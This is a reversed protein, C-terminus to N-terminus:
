QNKSIVKASDIKDITVFEYGKKQLEDIIIFAANVSTKFIDHLLIIDGPKTNKIVRRAVIGANQDKWDEPDVSWLVISMDTEELLRDDWDGYPPRIYKPTKGTVRKICKNTKEIEEKSTEYNSRKLDIHSYTHNGVIHGEKSMRRVVDESYQIERGTLFFTAKVGREKLGDLLIETYVTSPGDDFTIAVRPKDGVQDSAVGAQVADRSEVKEFKEPEKVESRGIYWVTINLVVLLLLILNKKM